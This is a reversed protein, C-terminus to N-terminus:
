LVNEGWFTRKVVVACFSMRAPYDNLNVTRMGFYLEFDLEFCVFRV